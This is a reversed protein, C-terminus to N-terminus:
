MPSPPSLSARKAEPRRWLQVKSQREGFATAILHGDPSFAAAHTYTGQRPITALLKGTAANWIEIPSDECVTLLRRGDNTFALDRVERKVTFKGQLKASPIAHVHVTRDQAVFAVAGGDPSLAFKGRSQIPKGLAKDEALDWLQTTGGVMALIKGDADMTLDRAPNGLAKLLKGTSVDWFKVGAGRHATIVQKNDKTFLHDEVTNDTRSKASLDTKDEYLLPKGIKRGTRTNFVQGIMPVRVVKTQGPPLRNYHLNVLTMEGDPSVAATGFPGETNGLIRVGPGLPRAKLPDWRQVFASVVVLVKSDPTFAAGAVSSFDRSGPKSGEKRDVGTAVHPGTIGSGVLTQTKVDWLFAAGDQHILLRQGDPSFQIRGVRFNHEMPQGVPELTLQALCRSPVDILLAMAAFTAVTRAFRIVDIEANGNWSRNAM